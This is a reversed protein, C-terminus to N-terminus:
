LVKRATRYSPPFVGPLLNYNKCDGHQDAIDSLLKVVGYVTNDDSFVHAVVGQRCYSAGARDQVQKQYKKYSDGYTGANHYRLIKTCSLPFLQGHRDTVADCQGCNRGQDNHKQPATRERGSRSISWVGSEMM